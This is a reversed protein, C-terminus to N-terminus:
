EGEDASNKLRTGRDYVTVDTYNKYSNGSALDSVICSYRGGDQMMVPEIFLSFDDSINFRGEDVGKGSRKGTNFYMDLLALTDGGSEKHDNLYVWYIDYADHHYQCPLIASSGNLIQVSPKTGVTSADVSIIASIMVLLIPYVIVM